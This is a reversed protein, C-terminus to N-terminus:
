QFSVTIEGTTSSQPIVSCYTLSTGTYGKQVTWGTSATRDTGPVNANPLPQLNGFSATSNPAVTLMSTGAGAVATGGDTAVNVAVPTANEVTIASYYESSALHNEVGTASYAFTQSAAKSPAAM